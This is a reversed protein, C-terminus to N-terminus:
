SPALAEALGFGLYSTSAPGVFTRMWLCYAAGANLWSWRQIRM